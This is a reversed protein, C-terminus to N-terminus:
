QAILGAGVIILLEKPRGPRGETTAAATTTTTAAAAAAAAASTGNLCYFIYNMCLIGMHWERDTESQM